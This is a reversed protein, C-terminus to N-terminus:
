LPDQHRIHHLDLLHIKGLMEGRGELSGRFFRTLLIVRILGEQGTLILM